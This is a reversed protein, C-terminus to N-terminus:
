DCLYKFDSRTSIRRRVRHLRSKVAPESIKLADSIERITAGKAIQMQFATALHPGFNHIILATKGLRQRIDCIQEPNLSPDQIEFRCGDTGEDHKLDVLLEPRVRRKRLVMLASNIAIRTLWTSIACRGEFKHLGRYARLFTEQLADEADEHSKTIAFITNYLRRSYTAYLEAFYSSSGTRSVAGTGRESKQKETGINPTCAYRDSMVLRRSEDAALDQKMKKLADRQQWGEFIPTDIHGPCITNV